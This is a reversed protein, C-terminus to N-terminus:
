NSITKLLMTAVEQRTVSSRPRSGDVLGKETAEDWFPVAWPSAPEAAQEEQMKEVEERVIRRIEQETMIATDEEESWYDVWPLKGHKTWYRVPYGSQKGLNGVVSIQVGNKWAPTCEVALGDGVYIGIHGRCWVVEGPTLGTFATSVGHCQTIAADAGIDPVGNSAYRGGGYTKTSDGCWGWLIAKILGVCDFYFAGPEGVLKRAAAAYGATTNQSYSQEARQITQATIPLGIGGWIYTTKYNRAIDLAKEVLVTNKMM